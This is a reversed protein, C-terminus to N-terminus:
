PSKTLLNIVEFVCLRVRTIRIVLRGVLDGRGELYGGLARSATGPLPLSLFGYRYSIGSTAFM